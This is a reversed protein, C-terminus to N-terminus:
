GAGGPRLRGLDSPGKEAGAALRQAENRLRGAEASFRQLSTAAAAYDALLPDVLEAEPLRDLLLTLDRDLGARLLRFVAWRLVFGWILLWLLAEQLFGAGADPQGQWLRGGFFSVGARVLIAVLFGTFLLEFLGRFALRDLQQRRQAVLQDIGGALWRSAREILAAAAAPQGAVTVHPPSVLPPVAGAQEALGALVQRSQELEGGTLGLEALGQQSEAASPVAEPLGGALLRGLLGPRSRVRGWLGSVAAVAHLFTAFLGGQWRAVVEDDILAQWTRRGHRLERAIGDALLGELRRREARVGTALKAVAPEAQTLRDASRDLFWILLDFAGTRRVRRAARGVLESDIVAVLEQFSPEAPEGLLARRTAEVGDLRFIRPVAFGQAVLERRWDERIDPDRAAHTQVFLLPRGPAFAALERAIIWSRYKQATSVLLLVDCQPLVAELRDRNRNAVDASAGGTTGDTMDLPQTDPDPCDILVIGSVAPAECRILRADIAELSLWGVDVQPGTVAVPQRTTPRAVDGAETVERGALANVLTSKGVGTGGVVGVVLVRSLERRMAELRAAIDQWEAAITQAPLWGTATDVWGATATVLADFRTFEDATAPLQGRDAADDHVSM